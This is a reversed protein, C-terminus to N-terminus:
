IVQFSPDNNEETDSSDSENVDVTWDLVRSEQYLDNTSLFSNDNEEIVTSVSESVEVTWDLVKSEQIVDDITQSSNDNNENSTSSDKNTVEVPYPLTKSKEFVNRNSKADIASSHRNSEISNGLHSRRQENNSFSKSANGIMNKSYSGNMNNEENYYCVSSIKNSFSIANGPTSPFSSIMTMNSTMLFQSYGHDSTSILVSSCSVDNYYMSEYEYVSFSFIQFAHIQSLTICPQVLFSIIRLYHFM